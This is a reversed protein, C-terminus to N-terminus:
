CIGADACGQSRAKLTLIEAGLPTATLPVEITVQDRYIQVEGFIPDDKTVGDPLVVNGFEVDPTDSLFRFKSQYLYYGDAIDWNFRVSKGDSSQASIVFAQDPLLFEDAARAAPLAVLLTLAWAILKKHM